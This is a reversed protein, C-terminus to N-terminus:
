SLNELSSDMMEVKDELIHILRALSSLFSSSDFIIDHIPCVEEFLIERM